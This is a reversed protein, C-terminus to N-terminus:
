LHLKQILILRFGLQHLAECLAEPAATAPRLSQRRRRRLLPLSVIYYPFFHSSSSLLGILGTYLSCRWGRHRGVINCTRWPPQHGEQRRAGLFNNPQPRNINKEFLDFKFFIIYIYIYM